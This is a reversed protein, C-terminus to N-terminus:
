GGRYICLDTCWKLLQGKFYYNLGMAYEDAEHFNRFAAAVVHVPAPAGTATLVGPITVTAFRGSGNIDGSDGRIFSWRAAVELKKPIIFYGGQLLMGYDFLGQGKPFLANAGTSDQYILVGGGNPTSRFANLSRFFWDNA